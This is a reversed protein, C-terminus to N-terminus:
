KKQNVSNLNVLKKPLHLTTKPLSFIFNDPLGLLKNLNASFKLQVGEEYIRVQAIHNAIIHLIGIKAKSQRLGAALSLFLSETNYKEPENVTGAKKEWYYMSFLFVKGDQFADYESKRPNQSKHVGPQFSTSSFGLFTSLEAPLVLTRNNTTDAWRLITTAQEQTEGFLETIELSYGQKQFESAILSTLISLNDGAPKTVSLSVTNATFVTFSETPTIFFKKTNVSSNKAVTTSVAEEPLTKELRYTIEVLGVEYLCEPLTIPISLDSCFNTSSNEPYLTGCDNSQSYVHFSDLEM